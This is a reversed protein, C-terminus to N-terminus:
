QRVLKKHFVNGSEDTISVTYMGAPLTNVPLLERYPSQLLVKGRMDTVLISSPSLLDTQIKLLDGNVPNPILTLETSLEAEEVAVPVEECLLLAETDSLARNWYRFDDMAGEFYWPPGGVQTDHRGITGPVSSYVIGTASGSYTGSDKICNVYIDMDSPGRIVVVVHSWAAQQISITGFKSRRSQFGTNGAGNGFSGAMVGSGSPDYNVWAGHYNDQQYDTTFLVAPASLDDPRVWFSFSIPLQPKLQAVGPLDVFTNVGNFYVAHNPNGARDTTFTLNSSAIGDWGNGSYDTTNGNFQYHLLLSDNLNQASLISTTGWLFGSFILLTFIQKM